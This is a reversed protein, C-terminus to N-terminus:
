RLAGLQGAETASWGLPQVTPQAAEYGLDKATDAATTPAAAPQRASSRSPSQGGNFYWRRVDELWDADNTM